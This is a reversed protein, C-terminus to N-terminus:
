RNRRLRSVLVGMVHGATPVTLMVWRTLKATVVVATVVAPPAALLVGRCVPCPSSGGSPPLGTPPVPGIPRIQIRM